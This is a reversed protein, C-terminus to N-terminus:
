FFSLVNFPSQAFSLTVNNTQLCSIYWFCAGLNLPTDRIRPFVFTLLVLIASHLMCGSLFPRPIKFSLGSCFVSGKHTRHRKRNHLDPRGQLIVLFMAHFRSLVLLQIILNGFWSIKHKLGWLCGGEGGWFIPVCCHHFAPALPLKVPWPSSLHTKGVPRIVSVSGATPLLCSLALLSHPMSIVKRLVTYPQVSPVWDHPLTKTEPAPLATQRCDLSNSGKKKEKQEKWM